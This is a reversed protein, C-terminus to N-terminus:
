AEGKKHEAPERDPPVNLLRLAGSMVKSFVPAAVNGGYYYEGRPDNIVVVMVLRPNSAPGFGAFLARYRGETYAGDIIMKTTGTKGAIRYRAVRATSGTGKDSVAMELMNRIQKAIKPQ